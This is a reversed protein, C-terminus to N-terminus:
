KDSGHTSNKLNACVDEWFADSRDLPTDFRTRFVQKFRTVQIADVFDSPGYQNLLEMAKSQLDGEGANGMAPASWSKM